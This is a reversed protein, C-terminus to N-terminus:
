WEDGSMVVRVFAFSHSCNSIFAPACARSSKVVRSSSTHIFCVSDYMAEGASVTVRKGMMRLRVSVSGHM